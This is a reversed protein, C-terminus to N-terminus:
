TAGSILVRLINFISNFTFLLIIKAIVFHLISRSLSANCALSSLYNLPQKSFHSNFVLFSNRRVLHAWLLWTCHPDWNCVNIMANLQILIRWSNIWVIFYRMMLSVLWKQECSTGLVVICIVLVNKWDVQALYLSLRTHFWM